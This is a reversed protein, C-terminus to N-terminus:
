RPSALEILPLQTASHVQAARDEDAFAEPLMRLRLGRLRWRPGLQDLAHSVAQATFVLQEVSYRDVLEHLDVITGVVPLGGVSSGRTATTEGVIGLLQFPHDPALRDLVELFHAAAPDTGVVLTRWRGQSRRIAWERALLRWGVLFGTNLVWATGAALRSFDYARFFFVTTVIGAFGLAVGAAPWLFSDRRRHYLGILYFALVWIATSVLYVMRWQTASYPPPVLWHTPHAEVGLHGAAKEALRVLPILRPHYRIIVALRLGIFVLAADLAVPALRRGVRKGFKLVAHVVIAVQLLWLPFFRYRDRMHKSVFISMAKSKHYLIRLPDSRGSEGRFHIIETTPLYYIKWGAAGLRYCWDIDEGYMFYDEDLLGVQDMAEKRVMMCSGSLVEVEHIEDPDLYTMNYHALRRSKPFIRSLGSMKCFSTMPTPLGRRSDLQLTGDPNLIKCGVAGAEPHADMFEVMRRLTDRRVITDTNLLLVYRGRVRRLAVNNGASFGVNRPNRILDVQPFKAAIMDASGDRSANDVVLVEVSLGASAELVTRLAGETFDRTNYSLLVVSLDRGPACAPDSGSM